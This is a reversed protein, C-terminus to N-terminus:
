ASARGVGWLSTGTRLRGAIARPQEVAFLTRLVWPLPWPPLRLYKRYVESASEGARLVVRRRQRAVVPVMWQGWWFLRELELGTGKFASRLTDPRYRRRHGQIADFESFLEPLAPVSVVLVGGRQVLRALQLLAARDDDLHEIVDLALVGEFREARDPLPKRLDAEILTRDPRDIQELARRSIDMGAARYGRRELADLTVGWGCGADLISAPPRLGLTDLLTLTLQARARWWPHRSITRSLHVLIDDDM